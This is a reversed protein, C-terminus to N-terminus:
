LLLKEKTVANPSNQEGAEFFYELTGGDTAAGRYRFLEVALAPAALLLTILIPVLCPMRSGADEAM